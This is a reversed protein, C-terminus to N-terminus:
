LQCQAKNKCRQLAQCSFSKPIHAALQAPHLEQVVMSKRTLSMSARAAAGARESARRKSSNQYTSSRMHGDGPYLCYIPNYCCMQTSLGDRFEWYQVPDNNAEVNKIAIVPNFFHAVKTRHSTDTKKKHLYEELIDQPMWDRTCTMVGGFGEAGMWDM